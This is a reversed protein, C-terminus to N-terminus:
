ELASVMAGGQNKKSMRLKSPPEDEESTSDEALKRKGNITTDTAQVKKDFQADLARQAVKADLRKRTKPSQADPLEDGLVVTQSPRVLSAAAQDKDEDGKQEIRVDPTQAPDASAMVYKFKAGKVSTTNARNDWDRGTSERFVKKFQRLATPFNSGACHIRNKPPLMETRNVTTNFAYTRPETKSEYIQLQRFYTLTQSTCCEGVKSVSLSPLGGASGKKHVQELAVDWTFGMGDICIQYTDSLLEQRGKHFPREFINTLTKLNESDRQNRFAEKMRKEEEEREEQELRLRKAMKQKQADSVYPDTSEAFAQSMLGATSRPQNVGKAKMDARAKKVWSHGSEARKTKAQLSVELWEFALIHIKQGEDNRKRAEQVVGTQNAWQKEDIVLHTTQETVKPTFSIKGSALKVWDKVKSYDWNKYRGVAVIDCGKLASHVM